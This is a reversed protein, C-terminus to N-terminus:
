LGVPMGAPFPTVMQRRGIRGFADWIALLAGKIGGPPKGRARIATLILEFDAWELEGYGLKAIVEQAFNPYRGGRHGQKLRGNLVELIEQVDRVRYSPLRRRFETRVRDRNAQQKRAMDREVIRRLYNGLGKGLQNGARSLKGAQVTAGAVLLLVALAACTARL